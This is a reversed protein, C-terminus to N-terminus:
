APTRLTSSRGPAVSWCAELLAPAFLHPANVCAGHDADLHRVSAGPIARALELQRGPPVVRDRDTVIVATPVDVQSIWSDSTFACFPTWPQSSPLSLPGAWSPAPGGARQRTTLAM